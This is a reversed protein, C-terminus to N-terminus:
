SYIKYFFLPNNIIFISFFLFISLFEKIDFPKLCAEHFCIDCNVASYDFFRFIDGTWVFGDM